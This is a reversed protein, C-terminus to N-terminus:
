MSPMHDAACRVESLAGCMWLASFYWGAWGLGAGGLGAAPGLSQVGVQVELSGCQQLCHCQECAQGFHKKAQRLVGRDMGKRMSAVLSPEDQAV